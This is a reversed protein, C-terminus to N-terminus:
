RSQEKLKKWFVANETYNTMIVELANLTNKGVLGDVVLLGRYHKLLKPKSVKSPLKVKGRDIGRIVKNWDAQLQTVQAHPTDDPSLPKESARVSYGQSLMALRIPAPRPWLETNYGAPDNTINPPKGRARKRPESGGGGGGSSEDKGNPPTTQDDIIVGGSQDGWWGLHEGLRYLGYAFLGTATTAGVGVAVKAGTSMPPDAPPVPALETTKAAESPDNPDTTMTTENAM